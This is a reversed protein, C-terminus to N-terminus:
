DRSSYSLVRQRIAETSQPSKINLVVQSQEEKIGQRILAASFDSGLAGLLRPIALCAHDNWFRILM